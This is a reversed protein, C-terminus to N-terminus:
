GAFVRVPGRKAVVEGTSLTGDAEVVYLVGSSGSNVRVSSLGHVTDTVESVKTLGAPVIHSVSTLTIGNGISATWDFPVDIATDPDKLFIM